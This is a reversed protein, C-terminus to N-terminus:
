LTMNNDLCLNEDNNNFSRNIIIYDLVILFLLFSNRYSLKTLFFNCINQFNRFEKRQSSYFLTILHFYINTLFSTVHDLHMKLIHIILSYEVM